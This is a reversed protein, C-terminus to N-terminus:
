VIKHFQISIARCIPCKVNNNSRCSYNNICEYCFQHNCSTLVDSEKCLCIPCEEKYEVKISSALIINEKIFWNVINFDVAVVKFRDPFEKEFYLAIEYNNIQCFYIFFYNLNHMIHNKVINFKQFIFLFTDYYVNFGSFLVTIFLPLNDESNVLNTLNPYKNLLLEALEINDHEIIKIFIKDLNDLKINKSTLWNFTNISTSSGLLKLIADSDNTFTQYHNNFKDILLELNTIENKNFAAELLKLFFNYELSKVKEIFYNIIELSCVKFSYLLFENINSKLNDEFLSYIFKVLQINNGVLADILLEFKNEFTSTKCYNIFLYIFTNFFGNKCLLHFCFNKNIFINIKPNEKLAWKILDLNNNKCFIKFAEENNFSLDILKNINYYNVIKCYDNEECIMLFQNTNKLSFM